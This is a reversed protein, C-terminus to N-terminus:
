GTKESFTKMGTFVLSEIDLGNMTERLPNIQEDINDMQLELREIQSSRSFIRSLHETIKRKDVDVSLFHSNFRKKLARFEWKNAGFYGRFQKSVSMSLNSNGDSQIRWYFWPIVPLTKRSTFHEDIRDNWQPSILRMNNISSYREMIIIKFLIDPTLNALTLGEDESSTM